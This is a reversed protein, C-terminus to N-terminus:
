FTNLTNAKELTYPIGTLVSKLSAKFEKEALSTKVLHLVEGNSLFSNMLTIASDSFISQPLLKDEKIAIIWDHMFSSGANFLIKCASDWMFIAKGALTYALISRSLAGSEGSAGCQLLWDASFVGDSFIYDFLTKDGMDRVIDPTKGNFSQSIKTILGYDYDGLANIVANPIILGIKTMSPILSISIAGDMNIQLASLNGNATWVGNDRSSLVPTLPVRQSSFFTGSNAPNSDFNLINDDLEDFVSNLIEHLRM